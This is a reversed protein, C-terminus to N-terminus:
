VKALETARLQQACKDLVGNVYAHGGESGFTKALEISENIVVRYPTAIEHMLEYTGMRLVSLEVPNLQAIPRDLASSFLEDVAPLNQMVGRLLALFFEKNGLQMSPDNLFQMELEVASSPNLQWQYLAQLVARRAQTRVPLGKRTQADASVDVTGAEVKALEDSM